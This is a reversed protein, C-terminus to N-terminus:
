HSTNALNPKLLRDIKDLKLALVISKIAAMSVCCMLTQAPFRNLGIDTLNIPCCEAKMQHSKIADRSTTGM